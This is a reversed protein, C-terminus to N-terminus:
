GDMIVVQVWQSWIRSQRMPTGVPILAVLCENKAIATSSLHREGRPEFCGIGIYGGNM